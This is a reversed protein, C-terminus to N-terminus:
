EQAAGSDAEGQEKAEYSVVVEDEDRLVLNEYQESRQGNVTVTVEHAEDVTVGMFNTQSFEKGWMTFFDGLTFDVPYLYEMHVQGSADHTHVPHM